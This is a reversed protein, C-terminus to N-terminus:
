QLLDKSTTQFFDEFEDQMGKSIIFTELSKHYGKNAITSLAQELMWEALVGRDLKGEDARSFPSRLTETLKNWIPTPLCTGIKTTKSVVTNKPTESM